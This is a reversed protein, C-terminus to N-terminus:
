RLVVGSATIVLPHACHFDGAALEVAGRFGNVLPLASVADIAAQIATTDDTGSPAVTRKAPVTPLAVGGGEYGAYSFDPIRDGKATYMYVLKGHPGPYAWHSQAPLTAALLAFTFTAFTFAFLRALRPRLLLQPLSMTNM